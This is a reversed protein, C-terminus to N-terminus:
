KSDSQGGRQEGGQKSVDVSPEVSLGLPLPLNPDMGSNIVIKVPVRQVIKVFNGTANEAPFASFKSGSGFQISDVHGHLKMWPYADVSISVPQGPRMRDLQTEKFNATVWVDPTVLSLISTGAQVYQGVNVNRKTVWGDQPATVTTWSLNLEAQDLQAQAQEVAGQLQKVQAEVQAINPQVPQAERVAAEAQELQAQAQRQAAIANDIAQQTTAVRPLSQQRKLEANANALAAEAADRQAQASALRAPFSQRAVALQQEAAAVRGQAEELAGRAADRAAIFPRPDIRILVQGRRVRQNDNVALEVVQGSVQPAVMVANGDTYADDTTVIDKTSLWYWLGVGVVVLAGLALLPLLWRRRSRRRAEEERKRAQDREERNQREDPRERDRAQVEGREQDRVAPARAAADGRPPAARTEGSRAEPAREEDYPM